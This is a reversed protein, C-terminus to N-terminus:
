QVVTTLETAAFEIVNYKVENVRLEEDVRLNEIRCNYKEVHLKDFGVSIDSWCSDLGERLKVGGRLSFTQARMTTYDSPREISPNEFNSFEAEQNSVPLVINATLQYLLAHLDEDTM